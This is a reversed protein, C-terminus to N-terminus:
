LGAERLRRLVGESMPLDPTQPEAHGVLLAAPAPRTVSSLRLLVSSARHRLARQQAAPPVSRVNASKSIAQLKGLFITHM